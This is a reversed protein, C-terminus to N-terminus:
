GVKRFIYFGLRKLHDIVEECDRSVDQSPIVAEFRWETRAGPRPINRGTVDTSYAFNNSGGQDRFLYVQV